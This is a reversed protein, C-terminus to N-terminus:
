DYSEGSLEEINHENYSSKSNNEVSSVRSHYRGNRKKPNNNEGKKVLKVPPPSTIDDGDKKHYANLPSRYFQSYNMERLNYQVNNNNDISDELIKSLSHSKNSLRYSVFTVKGTRWM